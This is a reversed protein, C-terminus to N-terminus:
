QKAKTCFIRNSFEFCMVPMWNCRVESGGAPESDGTFGFLFAPPWAAHQRRRM